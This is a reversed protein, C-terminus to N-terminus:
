KRDLIVSIVAGIWGWSAWPNAVWDPLVGFTPLFQWGGFFLLTFIASGIVMHAYEGTFYLGFKFGGYETHFGGVLETETEPMDFPLRNTEAFLATLYIFAPLPMWFVLWLDKQAEVVNFLTLDGLSGTPGNAWMFVPLIAMGMALEYSIMQASSRVGGFFSYKNNGAWAGLVIGYVGLSSIALIFLIGIDLNALVLPQAQGDVYYVGFPLVVLVVLAPVLSLCPAINYYVKKVHAPVPEEKFLFKLGDAPLQFIGLQVLMKGLVPIDAVGPIRARNPGIRGQIWSAIKREAMVSYGAITMTVVVVLVAYIVKLLIDIWDM